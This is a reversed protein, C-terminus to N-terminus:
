QFKKISNLISQEKSFKSFHSLGSKRKNSASLVVNAINSFDDNPSELASASESLDDNEMSRIRQGNQPYEHRLASDPQNSVRIM